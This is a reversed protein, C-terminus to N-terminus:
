VIKKRDYIMLATACEWGDRMRTGGERNELFARQRIDNTMDHNILRDPSHHVWYCSIWPFTDSAFGYITPSSAEADRFLGGWRCSISPNYVAHVACYAKGFVYSRLAFCQSPTLGSHTAGHVAPARTQRILIRIYFLNLPFNVFRWGGYSILRLNVSFIFNKKFCTYGKPCFIRRYLHLSTLPDRAACGGANTM